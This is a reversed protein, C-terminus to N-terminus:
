VHQPHEELAARARGETDRVQRWVRRWPLALLLFISISSLAMATNVPCFRRPEFVRTLASIPLLSVIYDTTRLATCAHRPAEHIALFSIIFLAAQILLYAWWKQRLSPWLLHTFVLPLCLGAAVAVGRLAMLAPPAHRMWAMAVYFLVCMSITYVMASCWGPYLWLGLCRKWAGGRVFPAYISQVYTPAECLASICIMLLYLGVGTYIFRPDGLGAVHFLVGTALALAGLLRKIAAHNEARSAIHSAAFELLLLLLLLSSVLVALTNASPTFGLPGVHSFGYFAFILIRNAFPLGIVLAIIVRFISFRPRHMNQASIVLAAATLLMTVLLLVGMSVFAEILNLSGVVYRVIVYPLAATLLLVGQLCLACWKYFAIQWSSTRTLFILELEKATAEKRFATFGRMPVAIFLPITLMAWFWSTSLMINWDGQLDQAAFSALTLLIMALHFGIFSWVFGRVRLEQRLEKILVANLDITPVQLALM